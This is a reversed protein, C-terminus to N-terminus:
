NWVSVCHLIVLELLKRMSRSVKKHSILFHTIGFRTKLCNMDISFTCTHIFVSDDSVHPNRITHPYSTSSNGISKLLTKENNIYCTVNVLYITTISCISSFFTYVLFEGSAKLIKFSANRSSFMSSNLLFQM